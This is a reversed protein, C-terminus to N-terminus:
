AIWPFTTLSPAARRDHRLRARSWHDLPGETPGISAGPAAGKPGVERDRLSLLGVESDVALGMHVGRRDQAVDRTPAKPQM